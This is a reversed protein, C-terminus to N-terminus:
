LRTCDYIKRFSKPIEAITIRCNETIGCEGNTHGQKRVSQGDVGEAASRNGFLEIVDDYIRIAEQLKGMYGLTLGKCYLTSAELWDVAYVDPFDKALLSNYIV